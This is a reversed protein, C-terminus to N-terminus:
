GHGAVTSGPNAFHATQRFLRPDEQNNFLVFIYPVALARQRWLYSVAVAVCYVLPLMAINVRNINATVLVVLILSVLSWAFLAFSPQYDRSLHIRVAQAPRVESSTTASM